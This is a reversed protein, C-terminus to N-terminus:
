PIEYVSVREAIGSLAVSRRTPVLGGAELLNRTEANEVVQETVVISRSAALGQVRSAINVTQGFYDQQGNLTVALCSGEHIGMKLLLGQQQRQAGLESMAERMRIAAAIARDPTEFTAMVADGITKVVAGREAAIIEQLLRFHENVLDFAVLDGVHEYLGTSDKLDSFLFTLSLIKLRQGIALTETRYLDRFTQNTLLRKATLSPRRRTLVADLRGDAVWVAPLVRTDTRNELTLRLAGPRLTVADVPVDAKNFILALNQRESTEEGKVEIFQATHTVPDFLILMGARIQLSLIAREGPPLDVAELTLERMLADVDTPLDIASSWFVQRYYEALSLEDANHAAIKRVRPSVTFTVEVLNDLTTEYGAACFACHYQASNVTKLSKNASLVGACSPCMVSWTMELIGLGVARLLAGIVEEEDLSAEGALHLPNIKSLAHDPAERVMREILDVVDEDVSQRLVGFLTEIESM